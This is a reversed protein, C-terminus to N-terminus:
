YRYLSRGVSMARTWNRSSTGARSYSSRLAAGSSTSSSLSASTSASAAAINTHSSSFATHSSAQASSSENRAVKISTDSVKSASLNASSKKVVVQREIEEIVTEKQSAASAYVRQQARLSNLTRELETSRSTSIELEQQFKQVRMINTNSILEQEELQKKYMKIKENLNHVSEQLILINKRDEESQLILEKYNRERKQFNTTTEAHLKKEKEILIELEEIRLEMKQITRKNSSLTKTEIEEIQITLSKVESELAKRASETKSVKAQEEKLLAELHSANQVAKNAKEEAKRLDATLNGYESKISNLEKEILTTKQTLNVNITTIETIHTTLEIVKAEIVRKANNAQDLNSKHQGSEKEIVQLKHITQNYLDTAANLKKTTAELNLSLEHIRANSQKSADVHQANAKSASDLAVRLDQITVELSKRVKEVEVRL